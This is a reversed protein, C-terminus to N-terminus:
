TVTKLIFDFYIFLYVSFLFLFTFLAPLGFVPHTCLPFALSHHQSQYPWTLFNSACATRQTVLSSTTFNFQIVMIFFNYACVCVCVCVCMDLLRSCFNKLIQANKCMVFVFFGFNMIVFSFYVGRQM